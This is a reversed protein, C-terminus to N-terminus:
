RQYRVLPESLGLSIPSANQVYKACPMKFSECEAREVARARLRVLDLAGIRARVPFYVCSGLPRTPSRRGLIIFCDASLALIAALEGRVEVRLKGNDPVLIVAEVLSRILEMAETRTTDDALAEHLGAVKRRYVEALNPHLLPHEPQYSNLGAHM